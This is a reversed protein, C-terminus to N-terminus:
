SFGGNQVKCIFGNSRFRELAKSADYENTNALLVYFKEDKQGMFDSQRVLGSVIDGMAKVDLGTKQIEMLTCETLNRDRAKLYTTVLTEFASSELVNTGAIYRQHELIYMYRNARLVANQILYGIVSLKNSQALTMKEWSLGWVMLIIKMEDEEYIANAMLPYNEDLRKNIYVKRAALTEYLERMAVYHISNGLKRAKKSTASFLRAYSSNAVTYIAIDESEMLKALVEAAHFLVEGPEYKDLDSIIGYLYGFSDSQNIIQKSLLEKTKVNSDNIDAIDEIQKLLFEEEHKREAEAAKLRDSQYGVTLGLIMLQAIWIYTSSDLIIEFGSQSVSKEWYYGIISLVSSVTAQQQGYIIAFLLVYILYFDIAKFYGLEIQNLFFFIFFCIINEMYPFMASLLNKMRADLRRFFNQQREDVRLFDAAHKQIYATMERLKEAPKQYIHIGFEEDFEKNSLIPQKQQPELVEVLKVHGIKGAIYAAITQQSLIQGSSIQYLGKQTEKAAIVYYIFEVADKYHLIAASQHKDVLIEGTELAELVMQACINKTEAATKPVGYLHDLRLVVVDKGLQRYSRCLQEGALIAQAKETYVTCPTDSAIEKEYEEQFVEESSLYIFRGIGMAAHAKLVNFVGATYQTACRQRKDWRYNTDFAGMFITVNPRISDIVDRICADSYEFRYTEFVKETTDATKAEKTLRFVRHGEKNMKEILLTTFRSSGGVLLIDM